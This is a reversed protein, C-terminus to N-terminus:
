VPHQFNDKIGMEKDIENDEVIMKTRPLNTLM